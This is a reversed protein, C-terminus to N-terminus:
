TAPSDLPRADPERPRVWQADGRRATIPFAGPIMTSIGELLGRFETPIASSAGLREIAAYRRIIPPAGKIAVAVLKGESLSEAIATSPLFGVGLGKLIMRLATEVADVEMTASPAIGADRLLWHTADFYLSGPDFLVLVSDRLMEVHVEGQRAALPHDPRVVLTLEEEYLPTAVVRDDKVDRILGIQVDGHVVLAIVDLTHKTRVLARLDPRARRLRTILEPLIYASVQPTAGIILERSRALEVDRAAAVATRASEVAREAYPRFERGSATLTMGKPGREFLRVGVLHELAAIRESLAPQGIALAESAARMTGRRAVELFAELHPQLM